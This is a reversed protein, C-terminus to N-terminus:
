SKLIEASVPKPPLPSLLPTPHLSLLKARRSHLSANNPQKPLMKICTKIIDNAIRFGADCIPKGQLGLDGMGSWLTDYSAEVLTSLRRDHQAVARVYDKVFPNPCQENRVNFVANVMVEVANWLSRGATRVAKKNQYAKLESDYEGNEQLVQKAKEVYRQAKEIPTLKRM